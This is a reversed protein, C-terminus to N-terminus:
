ASYLFGTFDDLIRVVKVKKGDPAEMKLQNTNKVLESDENKLRTKLVSWYKGIPLAKIRTQSKHDASDDV